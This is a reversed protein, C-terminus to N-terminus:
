PAAPRRPGDGVPADFVLLGPADLPLHAAVEGDPTLVATPGWAIRDERAGTVDASVAWLGTERCREGRVANHRDKWELAAPRPLMNNAPCVLLSAGQAAVSAAAEPFNSDFCINIGFRLGEVEFVPAEDGPRFCAESRLLRRKRYRGIVARDRIVAATNYLDAGAQEILGVVMTPADEPLQGMLDAFRASSLDLAQRRAAEGDTLYGQLFGEPFCLLRAGAARAQGATEALWALAGPVDEWFVPTQAAAIRVTRPSDTM